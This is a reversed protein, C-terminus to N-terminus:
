DNVRWWLFLECVTEKDPKRDGEEGVTSNMKQKNCLILCICSSYFWFPIQWEQKKIKREKVQTQEKDQKYGIGDYM